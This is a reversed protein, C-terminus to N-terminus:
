SRDHVYTGLVYNRARNEEMGRGIARWTEMSIDRSRVMTRPRDLKVVAEAVTRRDRESELYDVFDYYRSRLTEVKEQIQFIVPLVPPTSNLLNDESM